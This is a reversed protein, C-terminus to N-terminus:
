PLTRGAMYGLWMFLGAVVGLAVFMAGFVFILDKRSAPERYPCDRGQRCDGQCCRSM